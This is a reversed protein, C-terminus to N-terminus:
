IQAIAEKSVAFIEDRLLQLRNFNADRRAEFHWAAKGDDIQVPRLSLTPYSKGARPGTMWRSLSRCDSQRDLRYGIAKLRMKMESMTVQTCGGEIRADAEEQLPNPALKSVYIKAQEIREEAQSLSCSPNWKQFEKATMKSISKEFRRSYSQKAEQTSM